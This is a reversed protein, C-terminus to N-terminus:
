DGQTTNRDSRVSWVTGDKGDRLEVGLGLLQDRIADAVCWDRMERATNRINILGMITSDELTRIVANAVLKNARGPAPKRSRLRDYESAMKYRLNEIMTEAEVVYRRAAWLRFKMLRIKLWMKVELLENHSLPKMLIGIGLVDSDVGTTGLSAGPGLPFKDEEWYSLWLNTAISWHVCGFSIAISKSTFVEMEATLDLENWMGATLHVTGNKFWTEGRHIDGKRRLECDVPITDKPVVEGNVRCLHVTTIYDNVRRTTSYCEKCQPCKDINTVVRM